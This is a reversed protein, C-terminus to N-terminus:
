GKVEIRNDNGYFMYADFNGFIRSAIREEYTASIESPSLNSSIITSRNSNLRENLIHYFMSINFQNKLEAGLDDIILLDCKLASELTANVVEGRSFRERELKMFLTPASVYIVDIGRNLLKNAISLSLHTKGLGTRGIFLLNKYSFNECFDECAELVAGMKMRVNNGDADKEPCKSLDFSDFTKNGLATEGAMDKYMLAKAKETVCRCIAGGDHGSDSCVSCEYRPLLDKPKLGKTALLKEKEGRLAEVKSRINNLENQYSGGLMAAKTVGIMENAIENDIELLRPLVAYVGNKKAQAVREATERAKEKLQIAKPIYSRYGAM